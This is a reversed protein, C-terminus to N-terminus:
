IVVVVKHVCVCERLLCITWPFLGFRNIEKTLLGKTCTM